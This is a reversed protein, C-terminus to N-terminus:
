DDKWEWDRFLLATEWDQWHWLGIKSAEALRLMHAPDFFTGEIDLETVPLIIQDM